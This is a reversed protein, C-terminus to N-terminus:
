SAGFTCVDALCPTNFCKHDHAVHCVEGEDCLAHPQHCNCETHGWTCCLLCQRISTCQETNHSKRECWLCGESRIPPANRHWQLRAVADSWQQVPWRNDHMHDWVVRPYIRNYANAESLWRVSHYAIRQKCYLDQRAQVVQKALDNIRHQCARYRYVEAKLSVDAEKNLTANVLPTYAEGARFVQVEVVTM